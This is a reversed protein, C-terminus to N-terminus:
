QLSSTVDDLIKKGNDDYHYKYQRIEYEPDGPEAIVWTVVGKVPLIGNSDYTVTQTINAETYSLSMAGNDLQNVNVFEFLTGDDSKSQRIYKDLRKVGNETVYKPKFGNQKLTFDPAGRDLLKFEFHYDMLLDFYYQEPHEDAKQTNVIPVTGIKKSKPSKFNTGSVQVDQVNKGSIRLESM